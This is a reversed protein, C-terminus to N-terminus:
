RSGDRVRWLKITADESGSLALNGGDPSLAISTVENTHGYFGNLQRGSALDWLGDIRM